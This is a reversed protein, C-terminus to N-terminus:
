FTWVEVSEPGLVSMALGYGLLPDTNRGRSRGGRLNARIALIEIMVLVSKGDSCIEDRANKQSDGIVPVMLEDFISIKASKDVDIFRNKWTEYLGVVLSSDIEKISRFGTDWDKSVEGSTLLDIVTRGNILLNM